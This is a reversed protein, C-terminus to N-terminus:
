VLQISHHKKKCNRSITFFMFWTLFIKFRGYCLFAHNSSTNRSGQSCPKHMVLYLVIVWPMNTAKISLHCLSVKDKWIGILSINIVRSSKEHRSWIGILPLSRFWEMIIILSYPLLFCDLPNFLSLFVWNIKWILVILLKGSNAM